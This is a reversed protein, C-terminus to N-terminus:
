GTYRYFVTPGQVLMEGEEGLKVDNLSNDVFWAEMNAFLKGISGVKDAQSPPLTAINTETM